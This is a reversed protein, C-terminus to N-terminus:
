TPRRGAVIHASLTTFKQIFEDFWQNAVHVQVVIACPLFRDDMVAALGSLTKGLGVDDAIILRGLRKAVEVARAQNPRLSWGERLRPLTTSAEWDPNMVHHIESRIREFRVRGQTLLARDEPSVVLPYRGLFWELEARAEDNDAFGFLGVQTLSIRPFIRKIRIAVQPELGSIIWRHAERQYVLKGYTREASDEERWAHQEAWALLEDGQHQVSVNM